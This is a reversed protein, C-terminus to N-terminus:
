SLEIARDDSAHLMEQSTNAVPRRLMTLYRHSRPRVAQTLNTYITALEDKSVARDRNELRQSTEEL